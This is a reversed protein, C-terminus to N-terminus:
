DGSENKLRSKYLATFMYYDDPTTIKINDYGGMVVSLGRGYMSMLTCSDIANTIGESIAQRDVELIDDLYFSQPAKAIKSHARSPIEKVEGEDDVLVFTEKAESSTIASGYKKVNEINRVILDSDIVPRVGDHILVIDKNLDSNGLFKGQRMEVSVEKAAELGNYISLQGTSGGKVIKKIKDLNYINKLDEMHPIWDEICSVVIADIQGGPAGPLQWKHFIRDIKREQEINM